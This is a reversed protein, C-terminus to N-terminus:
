GPGPRRRLLLHRLGFLSLYFLLFAELGSVFATRHRSGLWGILAVTLGVWGVLGRIVVPYVTRMTYWLDIVRYCAALARVSFYLGLAFLLVDTLLSM